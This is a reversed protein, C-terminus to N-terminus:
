VAQAAVPMADAPSGWDSRESRHQPPSSDILAGRVADHLVALMLIRKGLAARREAMSISGVAERTRELMTAINLELFEARSRPLRITIIDDNTM